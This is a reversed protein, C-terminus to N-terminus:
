PDWHMTCAKRVLGLWYLQLADVDNAMELEKDWQPGWMPSLITKTLDSTANTERPMEIRMEVYTEAQMEPRMEVNRGDRKVEHIEESILEHSKDM